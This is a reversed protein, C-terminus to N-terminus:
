SERLDNYVQLMLQYITEDDPIQGAQAAHQKFSAILESLPHHFEDDITWFLATLRSVDGHPHITYSVVRDLDEARGRADIEHIFGRVHEAFQQHAQALEPPVHNQQPKDLARASLRLGQLGEDSRYRILVSIPQDAEVEVDHRFPVLISQVGAASTTQIVNPALEYITRLRLGTITGGLLPKVYITDDIAEPVGEAFTQTLFHKAESLVPVPEGPRTHRPTRLPLGGVDNRSASLEFLHVARRPIMVGGPKLLHEHVHNIVHVDKGGIFWTQSLTAVAMDVRELATADTVAKHVLEVSDGFCELGTALAEHLTHDGEYITVKGVRDIIADILTAAKWGLLAVHPKTMKALVVDLAQLMTARHHPDLAESILQGPHATHHTM